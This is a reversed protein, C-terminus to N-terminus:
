LDIQALEKVTAQAEDIQQGLRGLPPQYMGSVTLRTVNEDVPSLEIKGTMAPFLKEAFTAKWEIPVTEWFRKGPGEYVLAKM